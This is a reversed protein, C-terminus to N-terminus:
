SHSNHRLPAVGWVQLSSNTIMKCYSDRDRLWAGARATGARAVSSGRGGRGPGQDPGPPIPLHDLQIGRSVCYGFMQCALTVFTFTVTLPGESRAQVPRGPAKPRGPGRGAPGAPQADAVTDTPTVTAPRGDAVAQWHWHTEGGAPGSGLGPSVRSLAAAPRRRPRAAPDDTM